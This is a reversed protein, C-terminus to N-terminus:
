SKHKRMSFKTRDLRPPNDMSFNYAQSMLFIFADLIESLPKNRWFKEPKQKSLKGMRFKTRDLKLETRRKQM